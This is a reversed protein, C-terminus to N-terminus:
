QISVCLINYFLITFFLFISTTRDTKYNNSLIFLINIILLQAMCVQLNHSPTDLYLFGLRCSTLWSVLRLIWYSISWPYGWGLTMRLQGILIVISVSLFLIVVLIM